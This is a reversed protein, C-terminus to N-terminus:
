QPGAGGDDTKRENRGCQRKVWGAVDDFDRDERTAKVRNAEEWGDYEAEVPLPAGRAGHDPGHCNTDRRQDNPDPGVQPLVQM